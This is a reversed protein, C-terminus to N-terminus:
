FDLNTTILGSGHAFRETVNGGSDLFEIVHAFPYDLELHNTSQPIVVDAWDSVAIRFELTDGTVVFNGNAMTLTMLEHKDGPRLKIRWRVGEMTWQRYTEDEFRVRLSFQYPAGLNLKPFRLIAAGNENPQGDFRIQLPVM